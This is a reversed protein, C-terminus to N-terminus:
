FEKGMDTASARALELTFFQTFQCNVVPVVVVVIIRGIAAIPLQETEVTMVVLMGASDLFLAIRDTRIVM